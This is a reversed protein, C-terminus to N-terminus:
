DVRTGTPFPAYSSSNPPPRSGWMPFCMKEAFPHQQGNPNLGCIFVAMIQRDKHGALSLGLTSITATSRDLDVRVVEGQLNGWRKQIKGAFLVVVVFCM